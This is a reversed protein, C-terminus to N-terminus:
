YLQFINTDLVSEASEAKVPNTHLKYTNQSTIDATGQLQCEKSTTGTVVLRAVETVRSSDATGQGEV